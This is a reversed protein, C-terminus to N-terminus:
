RAAATSPRPPESPVTFAEPHVTWGLRELEERARPSIEGELDLLRSLTGGV